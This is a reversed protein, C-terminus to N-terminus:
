GEANLSARAATALTRLQRMLARHPQRLRRPMRRHEDLVLPLAAYDLGLYMLRGGLDAVRWQDGMGRFVAFAHWHEPWVGLVDAGGDERDIAARLEELQRAGAGMARADAVLPHEKDSELGRRV